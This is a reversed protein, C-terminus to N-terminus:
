EVPPCIEAACPMDPSPSEGVYALHHLEVMTISRSGNIIHSALSGTPMLLEDHLYLSSIWMHVSFVSFYVSLTPLNDYFQARHSDVDM